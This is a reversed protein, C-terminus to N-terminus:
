VFDDGRENYSMVLQCLHITLNRIGWYLCLNCFAWEAKIWFVLNKNLSLKFPTCTNLSQQASLHVRRSFILIIPIVINKQVISGSDHIHDQKNQSRMMVAACQLSGCLCAVIEISLVSTRQLCMLIDFVHHLQIVKPKRKIQRKKYRLLVCLWGTWGSCRVNHHWSSYPSHVQITNYNGAESQSQHALRLSSYKAQSTFLSPCIMSRPKMLHGPAVVMLGECFRLCDLTVAPTSSSIIILDQLSSQKQQKTTWRCGQLMEDCLSPGGVIENKKSYWCSWLPSTM